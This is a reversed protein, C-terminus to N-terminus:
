NIVKGKLQLQKSKISVASYVGAFLLLLWVGDGIPVAGPDVPDEPGKYPKHTGNLDTDLRSFESEKSEQGGLISSNIEPNFLNQNNITYRDISRKNTTAIIQESANIMNNGNRTSNSKRVGQVNIDVASHLSSTPFNIDSAQQIHGTEKFETVPGGVLNSRIEASSYNNNIAYSKGSSFNNTPFSINGASTFSSKQDLSSEFFTFATIAAVLFVAVIVLVGTQNSSNSMFKPYSVILINTKNTNLFTFFATDKFIIM